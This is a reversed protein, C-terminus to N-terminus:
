SKLNNEFLDELESLVSSISRTEGKKNTDSVNVDERLSINQPNKEIQQIDTIHITKHRKLYSSHSFTKDCSSCAFPGDGTHIIEHKKLNGLHSFTKDCESCGFPKERYPSRETHLRQHRRLYRSASFTKGCNSCSLPKEETHITQHHRKLTGPSSFSMDCESCSIKEKHSRQHRYLTRYNCFSRVCESCSFARATTPTKQNDELLGLYSGSMISPNCSLEM